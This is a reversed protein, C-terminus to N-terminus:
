AADDEAQRCPGDLLPYKAGDDRSRTAGSEGKREGRLLLIIDDRSHTAM